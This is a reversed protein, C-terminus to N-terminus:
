LDIQNPNTVVEFNYIHGIKQQEGCENCIMKAEDDIKKEVLGSHQCIRCTTLATEEGGETTYKTVPM